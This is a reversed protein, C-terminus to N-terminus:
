LKLEMYKKFEKELESENKIKSVDVTKVFAKKIFDAVPYDAIKTELDFVNDTKKKSM